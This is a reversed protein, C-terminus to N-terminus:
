TGYFKVRNILDYDDAFHKELQLMFKPDNDIITQYKIKFERREDEQSSNFQYMNDVDISYGHDVFWSKLVSRLDSEVMIFDCMSLDIDQLFYCQQETHDDLTIQQYPITTQKSNFEYQAIGSVWREVPDRLAILYKDNKILSDSHTFKFSGLLCGKIFSSANKPIHVYTVGKVNDYWCEGLAHGLHAWKDM